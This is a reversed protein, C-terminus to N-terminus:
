QRKADLSVVNNAQKHLIIRKGDTDELGLQGPQFLHLVFTSARAPDATLLLKSGQVVWEGSSIHSDFGLLTHFDGQQLDNIQFRVQSQNGSFHVSSEPSASESDAGSVLIWQGPLDLKAHWKLRALRNTRVYLYVILAVGIVVLLSM